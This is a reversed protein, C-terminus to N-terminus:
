VTYFILSKIKKNKDFKELSLFFDINLFFILKLM